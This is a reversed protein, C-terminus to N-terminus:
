ALGILLCFLVIVLCCAFWGDNLDILCGLSVVVGMIVILGAFLCCDLCCCSVVLVLLNLVCAFVDVLDCVGCYLM